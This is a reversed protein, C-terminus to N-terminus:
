EEPSVPVRVTSYWDFDPGLHRVFGLRAYLAIARRNGETVNLAIVSEGREGLVRLSSVVLARGIGRGHASPDVFVSVLLPGYPARVFLCGGRLSGDDGEAVFSAWSLFEGYRGGIMDRLALVSDRVPDVDMQFLYYDFKTGFAAAHLAALSAEDEARVTRLHVGPVERPDPLPTGPPFRMESRGFPAFHLARMLVAEAEPTVGALHGPLLAIPGCEAEIRQLFGRYDAASNSPPRLYIKHVQFGTPSDSEWIAVGSVSEDIRYLRGQGGGARLLKAVRDTLPRPDQVPKTHRSAEVIAASVLAVAAELNASLPLLEGPTPASNVVSSSRGEM